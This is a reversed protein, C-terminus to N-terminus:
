LTLPSKHIGSFRFMRGSGNILSNKLATLCFSFPLIKDAYSAIGDQDLDPCGQDGHQEDLVELKAGARAPGLRIQDSEQAPVQKRVPIEPIPDVAGALNGRMHGLRDLVFEGKDGKSLLLGGFFPVEVEM